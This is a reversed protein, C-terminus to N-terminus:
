IPLTGAILVLSEWNTSAYANKMSVCRIFVMMLAALLVAAVSPRLKFTMLLLIGGIIGLAWAARDRNPAIEDMERPLNLVLFNEHEDQLLAIKRWVGGILVADGFLLKTQIM